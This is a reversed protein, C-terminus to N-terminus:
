SDLSIWLAPRVAFDDDYVYSGYTIISGIYDVDSADSLYYGPSRLWWWCYGSSSTWVGQATAYATSKCQRAANSAFYKNAETISLLFVNDSTNNGPDTSYDPNADATVTTKIIKNKDASSFATNYFNSNLWTRLTCTEWTVDTYTENYAKCDLAYKSIILAKGNQVDLVQWEIAEKGNSTNNDQEYAGFTIIDGVNVSTIVSSSSETVTVTFSATKGSYTVIITKTGASTLSTPSCTFGSSITGTTGNNYTATLTLGSTNLTDGVFYNLKTPKSKVSVSSVEVKKVTVTFTDTKGGYTVTITQTGASTLSTPSCTFGSSITGTTGNNYTATLTLGSTDLTDGVYYSTKTPKTTAKIKELTVDSDVSADETDSAEESTDSAEESVSGSTENSTDGIASVDSTGGSTHSDGGSEGGGVFGSEVNIESNEGEGGNECKTLAFLLVAVIVALLLLIIVIPTKKKKKKEKEQKQQSDQKNEKKPESKPAPNVNSRAGGNRVAPEFTKKPELPTTKDPLPTTEDLHASTDSKTNGGGFTNAAMAPELTEVSTEEVVPVFAPAKGLAVKAEELADYFEEATQYRDAPNHSCAKLVIKKLRDSGNVPAPVTEGSLRREMAEANVTPTPINPPLPVFPLRRENLLWYLVLGLSYIDATTNYAHGSYVEPPIYSYTGIKTARTTHDMVRAIGFDGLKFDGFENVFINQPKIDRHVINRKACLRLARCIDLGVKVIEKESMMHASRYDLLTELLEMRILITYGQGGEKEKISHDEYSVINTNGRFSAMLEFESVISNVQEKFISTIGEQDVGEKLYQQYEEPSSPVSIVKLASYFERNGGDIKRIKYVKSFGGSGLLGVTEWGPLFMPYEM